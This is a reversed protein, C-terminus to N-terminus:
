KTQHMPKMNFTGPGEPKLILLLKHRFTQYTPMKRGRPRGKEAGTATSPQKRGAKFLRPDQM